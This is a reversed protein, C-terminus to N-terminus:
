KLLCGELAGSQDGCVVGAAVSGGVPEAAARPLGACPSEEWPCVSEGRAPEKGGKGGWFREGRCYGRCLGVEAFLEATCDDELGSQGRVAASEEKDGASLRLERWLAGALGSREGDEEEEEAVPVKGGRNQVPADVRHENQDEPALPAGRVLEPTALPEDPAEPPNQSQTHEERTVSPCEQDQSELESFSQGREAPGAHVFDKGLEEPPSVNGGSEPSKAAACSKDPNELVPSAASPEAAAPDTCCSGSLSESLSSNESCEAAGADRSTQDEARQRCLSESGEPVVANDCSQDQEEAETPNKNHVSSLSDSCDKEQSAQGSFDNSNELSLVDVCRVPREDNRDSNSKASVCGEGPEQQKGPVLSDGGPSGGSGGLEERTARVSAKPCIEGEQAVVGGSETGAAVPSEREGWEARKRMAKPVYLAKDPKKWPPRKIRGSGV